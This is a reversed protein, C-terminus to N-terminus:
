IASDFELILADTNDESYEIEESIIRALDCGAELSSAGSGLIRTLLICFGLRARLNDYSTSISVHRFILYAFFRELYEYSLSIEDGVKLM